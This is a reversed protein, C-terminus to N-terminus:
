RNAKIYSLAWRFAYTGPGVLFQPLADPGCAATGLGRMAVDIHVETTASAQLDALTEAENLVEDHHPRATFSLPKPLTFQLGEGAGNLLRFWHTEEHAGYEQPRVYAHYQDAVNSRWVGHTQAGKRDPYSEDPGLGRWELRDFAKDVEFRVGIRPLDKWAEPVVFTEDFRIEGNEISVLTRHILQAEDTGNWVREFRMVTEASAGFSEASHSGPQLDHLGYGIWEATRNQFLSRAGPKGGDNDTPARWLSPTISSVIIPEGAGAVAGIAGEQDFSVTLEKEQFTPTDHTQAVADSLEPQSIEAAEPASLLLQDWAIVHGASAWSTAAKLTWSLTLHWIATDDTAASLFPELKLTEGPPVVPWSTGEEISVGDRLLSWHFELDSTDLVQRRNELLVNGDDALTATVPRAAWMYERLAPHPVGDPGVLGNINFNADNPEDGYHGGYAWYFRGDADTEALGQDRWDWVFGGALAPECFFADVYTSLSGNSNGMAHSFECLIMPRDDGETREAWRAWEVVHDFPAYMPCVTDTAAREKADPTKQTTEPSRGFPFSLRMGVAGEYHVFRSPDLHRAAAAAADHAPGHGAENGLSWAIISPHNRDRAIM